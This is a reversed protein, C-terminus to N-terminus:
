TKQVVDCTMTVKAKLTEMQILTMKIPKFIWLHFQNLANIGEPVGMTKANKNTGISNILKEALAIDSPNLNDILRILPWKNVAMMASKEKLINKLELQIM